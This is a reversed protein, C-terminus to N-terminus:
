LTEYLNLFDTRDNPDFNIVLGDDTWLYLSDDEFKTHKAEDEDSWLKQESRLYEGSVIFVSGLTKTGGDIALDIAEIITIFKHLVVLQENQTDELDDNSLSDQYWLLQDSTLTYELEDIMEQKTFAGLWWQYSYDDMAHIRDTVHRGKVNSEPDICFDIDWDISTVEDSSHLGLFDCGWDCGTKPDILDPLDVILNTSTNYIPIM